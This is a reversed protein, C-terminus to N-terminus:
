VVAQRVGSNRFCCCSISPNVQRNIPMATEKADGDYTTETNLAFSTASATTYVLFPQIFSTNLHDNDGDDLPGINQDDSTQLPLEPKQRRRGCV